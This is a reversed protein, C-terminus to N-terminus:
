QIHTKDFETVNTFKYLDTNHLFAGSVCWDRVEEHIMRRWYASCSNIINVM